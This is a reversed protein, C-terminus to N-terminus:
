TNISEARMDQRDEYQRSLRMRIEFSIADYQARAMILNGKINGMKEIHAIYEPDIRSKRNAEALSDGVHKASLTALIVHRSHEAIVWERELEAKKQGRKYLVSTLEEDRLKNIDTM